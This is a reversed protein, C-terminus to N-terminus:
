TSNLINGSLSCKTVIHPKRLIKLNNKFYTLDGVLVMSALVCAHSATAISLAAARTWLHHPSCRPRRRSGAARLGTHKYMLSQPLHRHSMSVSQKNQDKNNYRFEDSDKWERGEAGREDAEVFECHGAHM